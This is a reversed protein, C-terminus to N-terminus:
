ANHDTHLKEAITSSTSYYVNGFLDKKILAFCFHNFCGFLSKDYFVFALSNFQQTVSLPLIHKKGALTVPM